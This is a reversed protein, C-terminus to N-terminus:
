PMRAACYSARSVEYNGPTYHVSSGALQSVTKWDHCDGRTALEEGMGLEELQRHVFADFNAISFKCGRWEGVYHNIPQSSHVSQISLTYHPLM